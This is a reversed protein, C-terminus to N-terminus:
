KLLWMFNDGLHYKMDCINICVQILCGLVNQCEMQAATNDSEIEKSKEIPQLCNEVFITVDHQRTQFEQYTSILESLKIQSKNKDIESMYNEDHQHSEKLTQLKREMDPLAELYVEMDQPVSFKEGAASKSKQSQKKRLAIKSYITKFKEDLASWHDTLKSIQEKIQENYNTAVAAPHLTVSEGLRKVDKMTSNHSDFAKRKKDYEEVM